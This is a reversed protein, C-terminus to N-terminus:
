KLRATDQVTQKIIEILRMDADGEPIFSIDSVDGGCLTKFWVAATAYRGYVLHMHYGDRCLSQGGAAYDFEPLGRLTQIVDGCNIQKLGTREAALDYAGCLAKYMQQQDHNYRGFAFHDSDTEYAWTQHILIEASTTRAKIYDTLETIYPYYSDAIGSDHSSQQVTIFDWNEEALAEEVSAMRGTPRGNLQYEYAQLNEEINKAHLELPCGGIYLNVVKVEVGASKAMDHLYATADQSFSNGVALIKIM